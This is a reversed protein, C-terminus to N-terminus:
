LIIRDKIVAWTNVTIFSKIEEYPKSNSALTRVNSGPLGGSSNRVSCVGHYCVRGVKTYQSMKIEEKSKGLVTKSSVPNKSSM